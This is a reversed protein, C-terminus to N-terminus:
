SPVKRNVSLPLIRRAINPSKANYDKESDQQKMRYGFATTM